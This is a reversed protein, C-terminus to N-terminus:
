GTPPLTQNIREILQEFRDLSVPSIKPLIEDRHRLFHDAPGGHEFDVGTKEAIRKVIRDGPPLDAAALNQGMAENFILLYDDIEFLDEIDANNSGTVEGVTVLRSPDLLGRSALETLRQAGKTGSDILVSVELHAGLLAVFTPINQVGGCPLIRLREDLSTRGGAKLHDSMTTLYTFDSTGEVLLNNPGVFLSQAIDYGLAAQLPFLSDRDTALVETSVEAGQDPGKDEVIRVRDLSDTEVMFPSHTTYIVQHSPALRENIFRLFDHQARAHLNLAPEDLLVIVRGEYAEFESFAALFSFFWQFGSSRQGFNGTYGHRQDRVRVDLFRAVATEGTPEQETVKDVDIEVSLETNQTWYAFVQRTLDISVAELEAVRLEYDEEGLRTTDTGALRLLAWATQLGTSAPPQDGALKRLDVRGPLTSYEGFYFFKPLLDRIFNLMVMEFSISEPLLEAVGEELAALEQTTKETLDVSERAANSSGALGDFSNTELLKKTTASAGAKKVLNTVAKSEDPSVMLCLTGDYGRSIEVTDGKVVGPGVFEEIAARDTDELEFVASTPRTAEATSQKRDRVLLWRPYDTELTFSARRAPNLRELAHLLATKGSENKGVLCTVDTEVPISGSDLVNRFRRVKFDRLLVRRNKCLRSQRSQCKDDRARLCRSTWSGAHRRKFDLHRAPQKRQLVM